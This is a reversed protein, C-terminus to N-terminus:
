NVIISILQDKKDLYIKTEEFDPPGFMGKVNKSFGYPEKPIGLFNKDLKGNDNEDLFAAISYNENICLNEIIIQKNEGDLMELKYKKNTSKMYTSESTYVSLNIVGKKGESSFNIKLIANDSECSSENHEQATVSFFTFISLIMLLIHTNKM